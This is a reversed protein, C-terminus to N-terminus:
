PGVCEVGRSATCKSGVFAGGHPKTDAGWSTGWYVGGVAQAEDGYLQGRFGIDNLNTSPGFLNRIRFLNANADESNYARTDDLTLEGTAEDFTGYLHIQYYPSFDSPLAESARFEFENQDNAAGARNTLQLVFRQSDMQNDLGHVSELPKPLTLRGEYSFRGASIAADTATIYANETYESGHVVIRDKSSGSVLSDDIFYIGAGAVEYAQIGTGTKVTTSGVKNSPPAEGAGFGRTTRTVTDPATVTTLNPIATVVTTIWAVGENKKDAEEPKNPDRKFNATTVDDVATPSIFVIDQSVIKTGGTPVYQYEGSSYGYGGTEIENEANYNETKCKPLTTGCGAPASTPIVLTSQPEVVAVASDGVGVFAGILPSDAANKTSWFGTLGAQGKSMDQHLNGTVDIDTPSATTGFTATTSTLVGTTKNIDGVASFASDGLNATSVFETFKGTTFNAKMTFETTSANTLTDPTGGILTGKFDWNGTTPINSLAPGAVQLLRTSARSYLTMQARTAEKNRWRYLTGRADGATVTGDSLTVPVRRSDLEASTTDTGDTFSEDGTAAPRSQFLDIYEQINATKSLEAFDSSLFEHTVAAPDAVGAQSIDTITFNGRAAQSTGITTGVRSSAIKSWQRAVFGGVFNGARYVGAVAQAGPGGFKGYLTGTTDADRRVNSDTFNGTSGTISGSSSFVGNIRFTDNDFDALLTLARLGPSRTGLTTVAAADVSLGNFIYVGSLGAPNPIQKVVAVLNGSHLGDGFQNVYLAANHTMTEIAVPLDGDSVDDLDSVHRFIGNTDRAGTNPYTDADISYIHALFSNTGSNANAVFTRVEDVVGGYWTTETDGDLTTKTQSTGTVLGSITHVAQFPHPFEDATKQTFSVMHPGRGSRSAIFAGGFPKGKGANGVLPATLAIDNGVGWYTGGLADAEDGFIQGVLGFTNEKFVDIDTGATAQDTVENTSSASYTLRGTAFDVAGDDINFKRTVGGTATHTHRIDFTASTASVVVIDLTFRHTDAHATGHAGTLLQPATLRGAYSLKWGAQGALYTGSAYEPGAVVIRDADSNDILYLSAVDLATTNPATGTTRNTRYEIVGTASYGTTFTQAAGTGDARGTAPSLTTELATSLWALDANGNAATFDAGANGTIVIVESDVATQSRSQTRARTGIGVGYTSAASSGDIDGANTGPAAQLSFLNQPYIGSRSAIFAGGFPKGDDATTFARNDGGLAQGWYIGGVAEAEDGYIQGVLGFTDTGTKYLNEADNTGVKHTVTYTSTGALTLRGTDLDVAGNMIDLVSTRESAEGATGTTRTHGINFTAATASAVVIDLTFGHTDAHATGYADALLRPATLRGAYSLTKTAQGALYTKSAYDPGAVAIRDAATNDILYLSAVDLGSRSTRYEIVGTASYGTTFTQAAGTGDARNTDGTVRATAALATALWAIDAGQPNTTSATATSLDTTISESLISIESQVASPAGNQTYHRTGSAAGYTANTGSSPTGDIDAEDAALVFTNTGRPTPAIGSRSAIFAGGFPKGDDGAAFALNAGGNAQGWYTGGVADAEEGYIQGVLGFTSTGGVTKYLNVAADGGVKRTVTSTGSDLTLKGTNLDVSGGEINFLNTTNGATRTHGIDFTAETATVVAIDLTFRHTAGHDTGFADALIQPATLRGAYSITMGAQRELYTRSAAVYDPGTVVIRDGASGTGDILYLSAVDLAGGGQATRNTRYEIVGTGTYGATFTESGVTTSDARATNASAGATVELAAGLWALAAGNPATDAARTAEGADTAASPSVIIVRSTVGTATNTAIRYRAGVASGYTANTGSSPTGDIDAVGGDAAATSLDFFNRPYTIIGSRSAIFAGGLPRNRGSTGVLPAAENGLGWYTGGLAEAEDGYIQGVLGFTGDNFVNIDTALDSAAQDTVTATSTGSAYTLRGTSLDVTGDEINFTRTVGGTYTHTHAIDFSASTTSVVAIDLTFGHTDAHDTGHAGRILRPATIRGGYRLTKNVQGQLYGEAAYDPGSVVIRDTIGNNILYLSAVDLPTPSGGGTTRNTRYAIVDTGAYATTFTQADGTGDDRGTAPSLATELAKSLWALDATGDANDFDARANGTIVIIESNVADAGSSATRARTGFGVGYNERAAGDIDEANAAATLSFLNQPFIGGRSAIFAGGFPKGDDDTTSRHRARAPGAGIPAAM